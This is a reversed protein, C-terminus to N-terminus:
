IKQRKQGSQSELVKVYERVKSHSTPIGRGTETSLSHSKRVQHQWLSHVEVNNVQSLQRSNTYSENIWDELASEIFIWKKGVKKAPIDGRKAIRRLSEPNVKLLTAAENLDLTKM